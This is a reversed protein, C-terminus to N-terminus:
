RSTPDHTRLPTMVSNRVSSRSRLSRLHTTGNKHGPAVPTDPQRDRVREGLLAVPNRHRVAPGAYRGVHETHPTIDGVTRRHLCGEGRGLLRV